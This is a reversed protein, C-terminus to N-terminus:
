REFTTGGRKRVLPVDFADEYVREISLEFPLAPVAVDHDPGNTASAGSFDADPLAALPPVGKMRLRFTGAIADLDFTAVPGANANANAYRYRSGSKGKRTLPLADLVVDGVRLRASIGPTGPPTSGPCRHLTGSVDIADSDVNPAAVGKTAKLKRKVRLTDVFLTGGPMGAGDSVVRRGRGFPRSQATIRYSRHFFAAAATREAAIDAATRLTLRVRFPVPEFSPLITGAGLRLDCTGKALDLTFRGKGVSTSYSWRASSGDKAVKLRPAAQSIDNFSLTASGDPAIGFAFENGPAESVQVIAEVVRTLEDGSWRRDPTFREVDGRGLVVPPVAGSGSGAPPLRFAAAFRISDTRLPVGNKLDLKVVRFDDPGEEAGDAPVVTHVDVVTQYGARGEGLAAVALTSSPNALPLATTGNATLTVLAEGGVDDSLPVGCVIEGGRTVRVKARDFGVFTGGLPSGDGEVLLTEPAYQPPRARFLGTPAAAGALNAAFVITGDDAVAFDDLISFTGGGPVADGDVGFRVVRALTDSASALFLGPLADSTPTLRAVGSFAVVGAENARVRALQTFSGGSPAPDGTLVLPTARFTQESWRFIGSRGDPAGLQASVVATLFGQADRGTAIADFFSAWPIRGGLGGLIPSDEGFRGIQWMSNGRQAYAGRRALSENEPTSPDDELTTSAVFAFDGFSDISGAHFDTWTERSLGHVFENRTGGQALLEAGGTLSRRILEPRSGTTDRAYLLTGSENAWFPGVVGALDVSRDSPALCGADARPTGTAFLAAACALVGPLVLVLRCPRVSEGIQRGTSDPAAGM